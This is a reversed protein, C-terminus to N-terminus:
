KKDKVIRVLGPLSKWFDLNPILELGRGGRICYLFLCGGFFYIGATVFGVIIFISGASLGPHQTILCVKPSSLVLENNNVNIVKIFPIEFDNCLLRITPDVASDGTKNYVLQYDRNSQGAFEFEINSASGIASCSNNSSNYMILSSKIPLGTCNNKSIIANFEKDNCGLFYFTFDGHIDELYPNDGVVSTIDIYSYEDKRCRCSSEKVCKNNSSCNVSFTTTIILSLVIREFTSM